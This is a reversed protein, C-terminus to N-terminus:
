IQCAAPQVIVVYEGSWLTYVLLEIAAPQILWLLMPSCKIRISMFDKAMKGEMGSLMLWGKWSFALGINLIGRERM